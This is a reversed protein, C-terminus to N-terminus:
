ESLKAWVVVTVPIPQRARVAGAPPWTIRPRGEWQDSIIDRSGCFMSTLSFDRVKKNMKM